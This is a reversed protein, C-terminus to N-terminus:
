HTSGRYLGRCWRAGHPLGKRWGWGLQEETVCPGTGASCGGSGDAGEAELGPKPGGFHGAASGAGRRSLSM